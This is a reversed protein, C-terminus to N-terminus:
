RYFARDNKRPLAGKLDILLGLARTKEVKTIRLKGIYTQKRALRYEDGVCVGNNSGVSILVSTGAVRIVKGDPLRRAVAAGRRPHQPARIYVYDRKRPTVGRARVNIMEGHATKGLTKTIRM